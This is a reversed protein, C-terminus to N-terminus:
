HMCFYVSNGYFNYFLVNIIKEKEIINNEISTEINLIQKNIDDIYEEDKHIKPINGQNFNLIFVHENTISELNTIEISNTYNEKITTTKLKNIIILKITQRM